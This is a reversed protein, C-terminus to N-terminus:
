IVSEHKVIFVEVAISNTSNRDEYRRCQQTIKAFDHRIDENCPNNRHESLRQHFHHLFYTDSFSM